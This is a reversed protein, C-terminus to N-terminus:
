RQFGYQEAAFKPTIWGERLYHAIRAPDRRTPDGYGGGGCSESILREGPQLWEDGSNGLLTRKGDRAERWAMTPAGPKGGRVGLPPHQRSAAYWTFRVPAKHAYFIIEAGPGGQFEGAGGSDVRIALKEVIIPHQKESVEVSSQWVAGQTSASGYTLWGDHGHIGPGGWYGLIVQNVYERGGYRPDNGSLVSSSAPIGVTGYASGYESGFQSYLAYLHSTFASCLNSTAACTATPHKPKGIVAGERMKVKIRRFSGTCRPIDSGLVNLASM